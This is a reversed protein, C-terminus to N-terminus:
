FKWIYLYGYSYCNIYVIISRIKVNDLCDVIYIYDKNEDTKSNLFYAETAFLRYRTSKYCFICYKSICKDSWNNYSFMVSINFILQKYDHVTYSYIIYTTNSTKKLFPTPDFLQNNNFM